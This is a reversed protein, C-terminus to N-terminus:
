ILPSQQRETELNYIQRQQHLLFHRCLRVGDAMHDRSVVDVVVCVSLNVNNEERLWLFWSGATRNETLLGCKFEGGPLSPGLSGQPWAERWELSRVRRWAGGALCHFDPRVIVVSSVCFPSHAQDDMQM